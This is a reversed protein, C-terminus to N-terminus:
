RQDHGARIRVQPEERALKGTNRCSHRCAAVRRLLDSTFECDFASAGVIATKLTYTPMNNETKRYWFCPM